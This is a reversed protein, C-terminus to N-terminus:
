LRDPLGLIPILRPDQFGTIASIRDGSLDFVMLGYARLDGSPHRLYAAVTPQGNARTRVLRIEELRGGAPVTAFFRGIEVPGLFWMREPPMALRADRTLLSSLGAVDGAEWHRMWEDVVSEIEPTTADWTRHEELRARARQLASNIAATTTDLAAAVEATNWALVDRLILVARQRAPLLQLTAVFALRTAEKAEFRAAPDEDERPNLADPYPELWPIDTSAPRHRDSFDHPVVVRPRGRLMNLCTTTAIRLLWTGFSSREEFGGISRWAKVLAEQTADEADHFSGLMRYCHLRIRDRHLGVLTAFAAEDGVKASAVLDSADRM